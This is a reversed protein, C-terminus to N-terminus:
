RIHNVVSSVLATSTSPVMVVANLRARVHVQEHIVQLATAAAQKWIKAEVAEWQMLLMLTDADWKCDQRMCQLAALWLFSCHAPVRPRCAPHSLIYLLARLSRVVAEALMGASTAVSDQQRTATQM